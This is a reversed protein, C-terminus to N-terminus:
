ACWPVCHLVLCNETCYRFTTCEHEEVRGLFTVFTLPNLGDKMSGSDYKLTEILANAWLSDSILADHGGFFSIHVSKVCSHMMLLWYVRTAAEIM